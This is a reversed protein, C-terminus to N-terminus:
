CLGLGLSCSSNQNKKEFPWGSGSLHKLINGKPILMAQHQKHIFIMLFGDPVDTLIHQFNGAYQLVKAKKHDFNGTKKARKPIAIANKCKFMTSFM